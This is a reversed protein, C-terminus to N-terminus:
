HRSFVKYNGSDQFSIAKYPQQAGRMGTPMGPVALGAVNPRQELLRKIDQAPLHGEIVFGDVVATHCSGLMAPVGYRGKYTAVNFVNYTEVRFGNALM